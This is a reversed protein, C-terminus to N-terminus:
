QKLMVGEAEFVYTIKPQTIKAIAATTMGADKAYHQQDEVSVEEVFALGNVIVEKGQIDKPVFFRYDKFRVMTQQGDALQLKMWCGKAQCVEIVKATFKAPLTDSATMDGYIKAMEGISAGEDADFLAGYTKFSPAMLETNEIISQQAHGKYTSFILLIVLLNNFRKM